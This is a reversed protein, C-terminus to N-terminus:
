LLVLGETLSPYALHPLLDQKMRSTDSVYSAMGITVFDRTLPAATRFVTAFAECCTAALYFSWVPARWPTYFGWHSAVTDLCEQLTIPQDDGLNYIGAAHQDEIAAAVCSAFDPVSLLHIWTPHRWVGLLRHRLLWRAAEVMLVGRGYIMGSRLSVPVMRRQRCAEFLQREAELRTRAHVSRPQGDLRGAARRDPSSEGEVHPFSILIFKRVGAAHAAAALTRVYEINTRPLFREPRPAFLVGACHVICDAGQCPGALTAPDELDAKFVRVNPSAALDPALGRHHIMLNLTHSRGLLHRALITGLNGAAGTILINLLPM